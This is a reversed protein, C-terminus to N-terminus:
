HRGANSTSSRRLFPPFSPPLSPPGDNTHKLAAIRAHQRPFSHSLPTPRSLLISAAPCLASSFVYSTIKCANARVPSHLPLRFNSSYMSFFLSPPLSTPTVGANARAAASIQTLACLYSSALAETAETMCLPPCSVEEEKGEEEEEKGEEEEEEGGEEKSTGAAASGATKASPRQDSAAAV